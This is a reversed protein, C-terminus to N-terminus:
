KRHLLNLRDHEFIFFLEDGENVLLKEKTNIFRHHRTIGILNIDSKLLSTQLDILETDILKDNYEIKHSILLLQNDNFGAVYQLKSQKFYNMFSDIISGDTNIVNSVSLNHKDYLEQMESSALEDIKTLAVQNKVNFLKAALSCFLLNEADNASTAIAFEAGELDARDLIKPNIFNGTVGRVRNQTNLENIVEPRRDIVTIDYNLKLLQNILQVGINGAGAVVIKM